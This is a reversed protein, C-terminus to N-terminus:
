RMCEPVGFRNHIDSEEPAWRVVWLRSALERLREQDPGPVDIVVVLDYDDDLDDCDEFRRPVLRAFSPHKLFLQNVMAQSPDVGTYNRPDLLKEDKRRRIDLLAGTGCGVDLVKPQEEGFCEIISRRVQRRRQHGPYSGVDARCRGM